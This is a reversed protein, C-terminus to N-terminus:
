LIYVTETVPSSAYFPILGTNTHKNGTSMQKDEKITRLRQDSQQQDTHCLRPPLLPTWTQRESGDCGCSSSSWATEWCPWSGRGSASGSPFCESPESQEPPVCGQPTMWPLNRKKARVARWPTHTHTHLKRGHGLEGRRFRHAVTSITQSSGKSDGSYLLILKSQARVCESFLGLISPQQLVDDGEAHGTLTRENRQM